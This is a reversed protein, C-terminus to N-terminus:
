KDVLATIGFEYANPNLAMREQIAAAAAKLFSMNDACDGHLTPHDKRGDLEVCRGGVQIFCVFHLNINADIGQNTTAGEQAAAAHAIALRKDEAILKGMVKPDVTVEAAKVWASDLISGRAIEGLKDHNNLLAHMIAITGCANPVCQQTFFVRHLRCLAAIEEAQAAQQEAIRKETAECTPYVLLVAHVPSPVMELLDDSMGYVDVFQLKAETIGLASLYRNMVAPNSELPFWM